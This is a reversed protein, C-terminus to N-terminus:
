SLHIWRPGVTEKKVMVGKQDSEWTLQSIHDFNLANAGSEAVARLKQPDKAHYGYTM